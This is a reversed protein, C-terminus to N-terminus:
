ALYKKKSHLEMALIEDESFFCEPPLEPCNRGLLTLLMIRWAIVISIAIIRELKKADDLKHMEVNTNNTVAM